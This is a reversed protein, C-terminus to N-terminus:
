RRALANFLSDEDITNLGDELINFIQGDLELAQLMIDYCREKAEETAEELQELVGELQLPNTNLELYEALTEKIYNNKRSM